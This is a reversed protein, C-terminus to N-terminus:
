KEHFFNFMYQTKNPRHLKTKHLLYTHSFPSKIYWHQNLNSCNFHCFHLVELIVTLLDWVWNALAFVSLLIRVLDSPWLGVWFDLKFVQVFLGAIFDTHATVVCLRFSRSDSHLLSVSAARLNSDPSFIQHMISLAAM